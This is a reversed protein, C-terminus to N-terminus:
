SQVLKSGDASGPLEVLENASLEVSIVGSDFSVDVSEASVGVSLEPATWVLNESFGDVIFVGPVCSCTM